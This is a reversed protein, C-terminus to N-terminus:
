FNVVLRGWGRLICLCAVLSLSLVRVIHEICPIVVLSLALICNNLWVASQFM